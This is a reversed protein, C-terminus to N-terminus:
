DPLGKTTLDGKIITNTRMSPKRELSAKGVLAPSGYFHYNKSGKVPPKRCVPRFFIARRIVLAM